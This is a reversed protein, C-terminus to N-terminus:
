PRSWSNDQRGKSLALFITRLTMQKTEVRRIGSLVERVALEPDLTNAKTFTFRLTEGSLQPSLWDSPLKAYIAEADEASLAVTVDRFRSTLGDMAEAFLLKGRDLVAAHTAFSEIEPLEHSSIVITTERKIALAERSNVRELLTTILMDRTITDLGSFPEDMVILSPSFALVSAFLAKMRMGRSLHCIKRNPPLDLDELLGRDNWSPYFPRLYDLLGRVTMWEPLELNESIYGIRTFADGSLSTTPQGLITANGTSPQIMNLLLKILTTKGAGNHGILAFISGRPIMLDIPALVQNAGFQKSLQSTEIAPTLITV